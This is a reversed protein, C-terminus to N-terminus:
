KFLHILFHILPILFLLILIIAVWKPFGSKSQPFEYGCIPCREGHKPVEVACNPCERKGSGMPNSM